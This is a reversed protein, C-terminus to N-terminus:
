TLVCTGHIKRFHITGARVDIKAGALLRQQDRIKLKKANLLLRFKELMQREHDGRSAIFDDIQGQLKVATEQYSSSLVRAEAAMKEKLTVAEAALGTWEFLEIEQDDDQLLDLSGLRQKFPHM